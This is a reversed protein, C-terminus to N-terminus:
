GFRRLFHVVVTQDRWLEEARIPSHKQGNYPILEHKGITAAVNKQEQAM